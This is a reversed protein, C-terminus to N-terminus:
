HSFGDMYKKPVFGNEHIVKKYWYGSDKVIRKQNDYDIFVIGFRMSYGFSWEFNDTFSWHFYGKIPIGELIAKHVQTLHDQIYQIRRWDRVRGDFDVGDAVPIGNETMIMKKPHYNDWITKLCNYYGQPYIEWMQSYDNGEPKIQTLGLLPVDPDAKVVGRSYYNVGLFDVPQSIIRFDDADIKPMIPGFLDHFEQPYRGLFLPDMMSRNAMADVLNAAKQDEPSQSAADIWATSLVIGAEVEGLANDRIAQLARGHGLLLHHATAATAVPDQLGPAHDGFLNGNSVYVFPENLTSWHKVRDSFKKAMIAAYDSFYQATERSAWGGNEQLKQPLDWHFLTIFPQIDNKLLEDVLADYFDLGKQNIEGKGDPLIRTWASSFRYVKIQLSKMLALDDKWLHYHDNAVDANQDHFIKGPTHAFRDWVSEGKGDENWAGEIQHAASAVGWLFDNPFKIRADM